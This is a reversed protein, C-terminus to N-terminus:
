KPNMQLMHYSPAIFAAVAQVPEDLYNNLVIKKGFKEEYGIPLRGPLTYLTSGEPLPILHDSLEPEIGALGTMAYEPCDIIDGDNNAVLLRPIM